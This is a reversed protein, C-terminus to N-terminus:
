CESPLSGSGILCQPTPEMLLGKLVEGLQSKPVPTLYPHSTTLHYCFPPAPTIKSHGPVLFTLNLTMRGPNRTM